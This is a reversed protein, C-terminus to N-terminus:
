RILTEGIEGSLGGILIEIPHLGTPQVPTYCSDITRSYRSYPSYIDSHPLLNSTDTRISQVYRESSEQITEQPSYVIRISIFSRDPAQQQQLISEAEISTSSRNTIVVEEVEQPKHRLASSPIDKRGSSIWEQPQSSSTAVGASSREKDQVGYPQSWSKM